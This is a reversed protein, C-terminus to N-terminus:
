DMFQQIRFNTRLIAQNFRKKLRTIVAEIKDVSLDLDEETFLKCENDNTEKTM